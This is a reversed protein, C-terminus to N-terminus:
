LLFNKILHNFKVELGSFGIWSILMIIPILPALIWSSFLVRFFWKWSKPPKPVVGFDDQKDYVARRSNRDNCYIRKIKTHKEYFRAREIAVKDSPANYSITRDTLEATFNM